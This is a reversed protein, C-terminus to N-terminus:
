AFATGGSRRLDAAAEFRGDPTRRVANVGGFFMNPTEYTLVREYNDLDATRAGAEYAFLDGEAHFVADELTMGFDLVNMVTQLIATPIRSAGPSGLAIIGGDESSVVTPSMNSILREGPALAHFGRPNLEPEGLTNNMPIGTGPVVLGSGYGMSATISVALGESDVCSLHTTHPSGFASFIRRRQEAAYEEGTLREAVRDNEAGDLYATERDRLALKMAGAMVRVYEAEPMTALDYASVVKLMQALTPGGASPPGNTHMEGAGYSVSMPERLVAEYEALDEESIIGGMELM